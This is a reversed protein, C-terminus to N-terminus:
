KGAEKEIRKFLLGGITLIEDGDDGVSRFTEGMGKGIGEKIAEQSNVTRLIETLSNKSFPVMVLFDDEIKLELKDLKLLDDPLPNLLKYTGLRKKWAGHIPRPEVRIGDIFRYGEYEAVIAHHGSIDETTLRIKRLEKLPIPIIGLFRYSLQCSNGDKCKLYFNGHSTKLKYAKASRKIIEVKGMMSSAYTGRFDYPIGARVPAKTDPLNEGIKAEWAMQLIKRAIRDLDPSGTNALLVVGLKSTPAVMLTGHHAVTNGNHWYVPEVGALAMDDIHWALGIRLGYDLPITDNQVTFMADLTQSALIRRNELVGHNNVMMALRALDIVTTNLGGAPVDRMPYETVAKGKNYSKAAMSGTIGTEFRSHNMGMPKLLYQDMFQSYEQGSVKQVANGLLTVALNSYSMVTNPPYAVYEDKIEYVLRTFPMPHNGFFGDLWDCPLGSHHTMITRPTIGDTGGFRSKIQFEPLCIALPKDIDMKGAEALKMVAMANFVKSISGARYVTEPVAKIKNERDAFGFGQQWVIQQDDVLAISLGIIGKDKMKKQIFWTMYDKVYSYDGKKQTEPAKQPPVAYATFSLLMCILVTGKIMPFHAEM